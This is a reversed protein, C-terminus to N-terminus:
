AGVSQVGSQWSAAVNYDDALPGSTMDFLVWSLNANGTARGFVSFSSVALNTDGVVLNAIPQYNEFSTMTYFSSTNTSILQANAAPGALLMGLALLVGTFHLKTKM